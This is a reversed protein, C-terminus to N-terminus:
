HWQITYKFIAPVTFTTNYRNVVILMKKLRLFVQLVFPLFISPIISFLCSCVVWLFTRFIARLCIFFTWVWMIVSICCLAVSLHWKRGTLNTFKLLTLVFQTQLATPLLCEWVKNTPMCIRVIRRFPCKVIHVSNCICTVKQYLLIEESTHKDFCFYM